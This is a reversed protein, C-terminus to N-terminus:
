SYIDPYEVKPWFKCDLKWMDSAGLRTGPMTAYPDDMAAVIKDLKANYRRKAEDPLGHYYTSYARASM